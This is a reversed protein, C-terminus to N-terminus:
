RLYIVTGRRNKVTVSLFRGSQVNQYNVKVLQNERAVVSFKDSSFELAAGGKALMYTGDTKVQTVDMVVAAAELYAYKVHLGCGRAGQYGGEPVVFRIEPTGAAMMRHEAVFCGGTGAIVLRNTALDFVGGVGLAGLRVDGSTAGAADAKGCTVVGGEVTFVTPATRCVDSSKSAAGIILGGPFSASAPAESTGFLTFATHGCLVGAPLSVGDKSVILSANTVAISLGDSRNGSNGVVLKETTLASGGAVVLSMRNSQEYPGGLTLQEFTAASRDTVSMRCDQAGQFSGIFVGQAKLESEGDVAVFCDKVRNNCGLRISGSSHFRSGAVVQLSNSYSDGNMGIQTEGQQIWTAGNRLCVPVRGANLKAIFLKGVNTVTGGDVTFPEPFSDDTWCNVIEIDGASVFVGGDHIKTQNRTGLSDLYGGSRVFAGAGVDLGNGSYGTVFVRGAIEARCNEFKARTTYTSGESWNKSWGVVLEDGFGYTGGRYTTTYRNTVPGTTHLVATSGFSFTAGAGTVYLSAITPLETTARVVPHTGVNFQVDASESPVTASSWNDPTEWAGDSGAGTWNVTETAAVTAVSVALLGALLGTRGQTRACSEQIHHTMMDHRESKDTTEKDTVCLGAM